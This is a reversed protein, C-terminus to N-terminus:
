FCRQISQHIWCLLLAIIVPRQPSFFVIFCFKKIWRDKCNIDDYRNFPEPKAHLKLWFVKLFTLMTHAHSICDREDHTMMNDISNQM